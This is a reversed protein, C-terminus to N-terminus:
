GAKPNELVWSYGWKFHFDKLVVHFFTSNQFVQQLCDDRILIIFLSSPDLFSPIYRTYIYVYM